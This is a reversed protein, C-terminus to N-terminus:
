LKVTFSQLIETSAAMIAAREKTKGIKSSCRVEECMDSGSEVLMYLLLSISGISVKQFPILETLEGPGWLLLAKVIINKKTMTGATRLPLELRSKTCLARNEGVHLIVTAICNLLIHDLELTVSTKQLFIVLFM